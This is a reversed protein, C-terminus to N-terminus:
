RKLVYRTGKAKGEVVAAGQEVLQKLIARAGAPDLNVQAQVDASTLRRLWGSGHRRM